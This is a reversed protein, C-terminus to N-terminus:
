EFKSDYRVPDYVSPHISIYFKSATEKTHFIVPHHDKPDDERKRSQLLTKINTEDTNSSHYSHLFSTCDVPIYEQSNSTAPPAAAEKKINNKSTSFFSAHMNDLNTSAPSTSLNCNNNLHIVMMYFPITIVLLSLFMRTMMSPSSSSAPQRGSKTSKKIKM